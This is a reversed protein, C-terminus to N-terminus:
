QPLQAPRRIHSPQTVLQESIQELIVESYVQPFTSSSMTVQSSSPGLDEPASTFVSCYDGWRRSRLSM